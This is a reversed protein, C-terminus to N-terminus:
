GWRAAAAHRGIESRREPTHSAARARASKARGAPNAQEDLAQLVQEKDNPIEGAGVLVAHRALQSPDRPRKPLKSM